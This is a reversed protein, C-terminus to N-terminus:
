IHLRSNKTKQKQKLYMYFETTLQNAALELLHQLLCSSATKGNKMRRLANEKQDKTIRGDETGYNGGGGEKMGENEENM